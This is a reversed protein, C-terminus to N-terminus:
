ESLFILLYRKSINARYFDKIQHLYDRNSKQLNARPYIGEFLIQYPMVHNKYTKKSTKGNYTKQLNARPYIGEFLIQYPM